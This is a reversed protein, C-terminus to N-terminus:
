FAKPHRDRLGSGLCMAISESGANSLNLIIFLFTDYVRDILRDWNSSLASNV